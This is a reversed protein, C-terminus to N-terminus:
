LQSSHRCHLLRDSSSSSSPEATPWPRQIAVAAQLQQTHACWQEADAATYLHGIHLLSLKFQLLLRQLLLLLVGRVLLCTYVYVLTWLLLLLLL